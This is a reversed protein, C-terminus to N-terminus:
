GSFEALGEARGDGVPGGSEAGCGVGLVLVFVLLVGLSDALGDGVVEPSGCGPGVCLM